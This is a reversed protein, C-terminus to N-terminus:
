FPPYREALLRSLVSSIRINVSIGAPYGSSHPYERSNCILCLRLRAHHMAFEIRWTFYEYVRLLRISLGPPSQYRIPCPSRPTQVRIKSKSKRPETESESPGPARCVVPEGRGAGRAADQRRGGGGAGWDGDDDSPSTTAKRVLRSLISLAGLALAGTALLWSCRSALSAFLTLGAFVLLLGAVRDAM